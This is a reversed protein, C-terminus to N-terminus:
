RAAANPFNLANAYRTAMWWSNFTAVFRASGDADIRIVHTTYDADRGITIYRSTM